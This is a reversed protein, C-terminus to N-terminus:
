WIKLSIKDVWVSYEMGAYNSDLQLAVNLENGANARPWFTSNVYQKQGNLTVALFTYSGDGNRQFEWIMHNWNYVSPNCGLGTNM